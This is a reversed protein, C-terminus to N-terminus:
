LASITAKSEKESWDVKCNLAEAIFRIPVMMRNNVIEPIVDMLFNKGNITITRSKHSIIIVAEESRITAVGTEPNWEVSAGLNEAVFRVPLYTRRNKIYPAAEFTKTVGDAVFESSGVIFEVKKCKKKIPTITDSISITDYTKRRSDFFWLGKYGSTTGWSNIIIWYTRENIIRWGVVCVAHRGMDSFNDDYDIIGDFKYKMGGGADISMVVPMGAKLAKKMEEEKNRDIFAYGEIIFNKAQEVLHPNDKKFKDVLKKIKPMEGQKGFDRRFFVGEKYLINVAQRLYMGTGQYDDEYRTGYIVYPDFDIWKHTKQYESISKAMAYAHGVCSGYIFQNLIIQLEPLELMFEVDDIPDQNPVFRAVDYDRPDKEEEILVTYDKIEENSM